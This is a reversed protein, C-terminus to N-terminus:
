SKALLITFIVLLWPNWKFNQRSFWCLWFGRLTISKRYFKLRFRESHLYAKVQVLNHLILTPKFIRSSKIFYSTIFPRIVKNCKPPANKKMIIRSIWANGPMQEYHDVCKKQHAENQELNM